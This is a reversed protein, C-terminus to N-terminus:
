SSENLTDVGASQTARATSPPASDPALTLWSYNTTGYSIDQQLGLTSDRDLRLAGTALGRQAFDFTGRSSPERFLLEPNYLARATLDRSRYEIAGSPDLQLDGAGDQFGRAEGRLGVEWPIEGLALLLGAALVPAAM